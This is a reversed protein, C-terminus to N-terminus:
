GGTGTLRAHVEATVPRGRLRAVAMAAAGAAGDRGFRPEGFMGRVGALVGDAVPGPSLLVSGALVVPPPGGAAAVPGPEPGGAAERAAVPGPEPGGAAERAAVSGPEPGAAAERAVTVLAHLLRDVADDIVQRAAPDGAVAADAVVPALRGLAAPALAYAAAILAQAHADGGAAPRTAGTLLESVPGTLATPAARRDLAALVCRLGERGIWVASGEDGLLWGYGDCRHTVAGDRCAAAVAGTGALLLLGSAAATGAAFAVELDTVTVVDGSLGSARWAAATAAEAARRGAAGAGASGVVGVTVRRRDVMSLAQRLAGTLAGAPDGDASRPNAGAAVGRGVTAGEATAVVCRTSTGGADIGIVLEDAV